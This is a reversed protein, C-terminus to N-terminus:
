GSPNAVNKLAWGTMDSYTYPGVLGGVWAAPGAAVPDYVWAGGGDKTQDVMWVIGDVDVSAGTPTGVGPLKVSDILEVFTATDTDVRVIGQPLAAGWIHGNQDEMMGRTLSTYSGPMPVTTWQQNAPDYRQLNGSWGGVWSRGKSDVTFGYASGIPLAITEYTMDSIRVHVLPGASYIVGWFDNEPDVAGGYVGFSGGEPVNVQNDINGTEGDVLYIISQTTGNPAGSWVKENEYIPDGCGDV